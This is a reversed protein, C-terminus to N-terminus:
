SKGKQKLVSGHHISEIRNSEIRNVRQTDQNRVRCKGDDCDRNFCMSINMFLSKQCVWVSLCMAPQQRSSLVELGLISPVIELKPLRM